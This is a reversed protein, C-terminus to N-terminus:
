RNDLCTLVVGYLIADNPFILAVFATFGPLNVSAFPEVKGALEDAFRCKHPIFFGKPPLMGFSPYPM